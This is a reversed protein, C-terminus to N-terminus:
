MTHVQVPPEINHNYERSEGQPGGLSMFCCEGRIQWMWWQFLTCVFCRLSSGWPFNGGRSERRILSRVAPAIQSQLIWAWQWMVDLNMEKHFFKKTSFDGFSLLTFAQVSALLMYYHLSPTFSVGARLLLLLYIIISFSLLIKWFGKPVKDKLTVFM